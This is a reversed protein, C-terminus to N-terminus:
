MIERMDGIEKLTSIGLYLYKELGADIRSLGRTIQLAIFTEGEPVKMTLLIGNCAYMDYAERYNITIWYGYLKAVGYPSRPYINKM